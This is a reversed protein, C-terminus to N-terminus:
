YQNLVEQPSPLSPGLHRSCVQTLHLPSWVEPSSTMTSPSGFSIKKFFPFPYSLELDLCNNSPIFLISYYLSIAPPFSNLYSTGATGLCFPASFTLGPLVKPSPSELCLSTLHLPGSAPLSFLLTDSSCLTPAPLDHSSTMLLRKSRITLVLSHSKTTWCNLSWAEVAPPMLEIGPRLDQVGHLTALFFFVTHTHTHTHTHTSPTLLQM